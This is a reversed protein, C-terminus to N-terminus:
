KNWPHDRKFSTKGFQEWRTTTNMKRGTMTDPSAVGFPPCPGTIQAEGQDASFILFIGCGAIIM